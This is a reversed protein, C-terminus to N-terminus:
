TLREPLRASGPMFPPWGAGAANGRGIGPPADERCRRAGRSGRAPAVFVAAVALALAACDRVWAPGALHQALGALPANLWAAQEAAPVLLTFLFTGATTVSCRSSLTLLGTRRLAQVRPPPFEHAARALAEGGGIVTLTLAFGVVWTLLM